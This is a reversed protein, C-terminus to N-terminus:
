QEYMNKKKETTVVTIEEFIPLVSGELEEL